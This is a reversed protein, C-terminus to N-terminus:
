NGTMEKVASTSVDSTGTMLSPPISVEKFQQNVIGSGKGGLQVRLM